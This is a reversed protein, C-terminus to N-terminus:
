LGILAKSEEISRKQADRYISKKRWDFIKSKKKLDAQLYNWWGRIISRESQNNFINTPIRDTDMRNVHGIWKLRNIRTLPVFYLDWFIKKTILERNYWRRRIKTAEIIRTLIKRGFSALRKGSYAFKLSMGWFWRFEFSSDLWPRIKANRWTIQSKLLPLLLYYARNANSTREAIKYM